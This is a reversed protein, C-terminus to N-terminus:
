YSHISSLCPESYGIIGKEELEILKQRIPNYDKEALIEMSFYGENVKESLCGLASFIDRISNAEVKKDMMVVLVISNGSSEITKRYTLAEEDKDFEALVIDDSAVTPGYFPISDLKYYGKVPDVVDAWMTEVVWDELVPSLYRFLIKVHNDDPQTM